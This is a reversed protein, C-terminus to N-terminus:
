SLIKLKLSDLVGTIATKQDGITYTSYAIVKMAVRTPYDVETDGFPNTGGNPRNM